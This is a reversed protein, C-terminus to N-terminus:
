DERDPLDLTSGSFMVRMGRRQRDAWENYLEMAQVIGATRNHHVLERLEEFKNFIALDKEKSFKITIQPREDKKEEM